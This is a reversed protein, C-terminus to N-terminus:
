RELGRHQRGPGHREDRLWSLHSLAPIAKPYRRRGRRLRQARFQDDTIEGAVWKEAYSRFLEIDDRVTQEYEAELELRQDLVPAETVM